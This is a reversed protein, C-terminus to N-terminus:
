VGFIKSYRAKIEESQAAVVAPDATMLKITSLPTRGPKEKVLAHYSHQAYVDVLLQQMDASFLFSQFLRAANPNPASQFVATGSPILPSGETPYVIEIPQGQEKLPVLAADPGDPTVSREGLVLKRPTDATSQVQLVRQQALKEFYSWGLDRALMFTTTLMAGSFGPHAKVIKGRWKPDLLDAFSKPADEGKVLRTNYGIVTLQSFMTAYMGDADVQGIPFHKAVDEPVYAALWGNRKWDLFHAADASNVVDVAYIRSQQEQGIRQYTRESGSREVRVAVGPYKAEFAKGLREAQELIVAGCYWAVKGEKRAAEILAPTVTSPEPAAGRVPKAFAASAVLATSVKLLDRKSYKGDRM